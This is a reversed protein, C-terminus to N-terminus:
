AFALGPLTLAVKVLKLRDHSTGSDSLFLLTVSFSFNVFIFSFPLLYLRLVIFCDTIAIVLLGCYIQLITDV